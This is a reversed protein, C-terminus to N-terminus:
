LPTLEALYKPMVESIANYSYCFIDLSAALLTAAMQKVNESKSWGKGFHTAYAEHDIESFLGAVGSWNPHAFESLSDYSRQAGPIRREMHNILTLISVARPMAPDNKWGAIMQMAAARLYEPDRQARTQLLEKLRFIFAASEIVARALLVGSALDDREIM